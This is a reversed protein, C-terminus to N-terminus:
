LDVVADTGSPRLECEFALSKPEEKPACGAPLKEKKQRKAPQSDEKKRKEKVKKEKAEKVESKAVRAKSGSLGAGKTPVKAASAADEPQPPVAESKNPVTLGKDESSEAKVSPLSSTASLGEEPKAGAETRTLKGAQKQANPSGWTRWKPDHLHLRAVEPPEATGRQSWFYPLHVLPWGKENAHRCKYSSCSSNVQDSTTTRLFSPDDVPFGDPPEPMCLLRVEEPVPNLKGQAQCRKLLHGAKQKLLEEAQVYQEKESLRALAKWEISQHEVRLWLPCLSWSRTGPRKLWAPYRGSSAAAGLMLGVGLPSFFNHSLHLGHVGPSPSKEILVGLAQASADGLRNKYLEVVGVRVQGAVLAQVLRRVAQDGLENGSLKLEALYMPSTPELHLSKRLRPVDDRLRAFSQQAEADTIRRGDNDSVWCELEGYDGADNTWVQFNIM